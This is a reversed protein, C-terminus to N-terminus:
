VLIDQAEVIAKQRIGTVWPKESFMSSAAGVGVLSAFWSIGSINRDGKEWGEGAAQLNM